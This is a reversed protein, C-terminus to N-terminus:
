RVQAWVRCVRRLRVVQVDTSVNGRGHTDSVPGSDIRKTTSVALSRRNYDIPDVIAPSTTLNLGAAFNLPDSKNLAVLNYPGGDTIANSAVCAGSPQRGYLHPTAFASSAALVLTTLTAFM